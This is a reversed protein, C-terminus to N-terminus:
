QPYLERVGSQEEGSGADSIGRHATVGHRDFRLAGERSRWSPNRLQDMSPRWLRAQGWLRKTTFACVQTQGEGVSTPQLRSRDDLETVSGESYRPEAQSPDATSTPRDPVNTGRRPRDAAKRSSKADTSSERVNAAIPKNRWVASTPRAPSTLKERGTKPAASIPQLRNRDPSLPTPSTRRGRAKRSVKVDRRAGGKTRLQVRGFGAMECEAIVAETRDVLSLVVDRAARAADFARVARRRRSLARREYREFSALERAHDGLILAFKKPGEPRKMVADAMDQPVPIGRLLLEGVAELMKIHGMLGRSSVYRPNALATALRDHRARRVRMVDVQAEAIRWALHFLRQHAPDSPAASTESLGCIARALPEIDGAFLADRSIPTNLGHRRANDAVRAKGAATKPGTSHRANARNAARKRASTPM